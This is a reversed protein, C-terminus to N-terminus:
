PAIGGGISPTGLSVSVTHPNGNDLSLLVGATVAGAAGAIAAIKFWRSSWWHKAEDKKKAAAAGTTANTMSIVAEGTETGRVASVRVQFRGSQGNATWGTAAAQGDANTRFVQTQQQNAFAASPGAMPFQFIVDAGEVPRANQDLVQVVLPAMVRLEIDNTEGEGALAIVRLSRTIKVPGFSPEQAVVIPMALLFAMIQSLRRRVVVRRISQCPNSM